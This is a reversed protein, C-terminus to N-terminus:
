YTSTKSICTGHHIFIVPALSKSLKLATIEDSDYLDLLIARMVPTDCHLSVPEKPFHPASITGETGLLDTPTYPTRCSSPPNASQSRVLLGPSEQLANRTFEM